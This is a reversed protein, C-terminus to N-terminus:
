ASVRVRKGKQKGYHLLVIVSLGNFLIVVPALMLMGLMEAAPDLDSLTYIIVPLAM